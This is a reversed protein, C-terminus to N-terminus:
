GGSAGTLELTLELHTRSAHGIPDPMLCRKPHQQCGHVGVAALPDCTWSCIMLWIPFFQKDAQANTTTVNEPKSAKPLKMLEPQMYVGLVACDFPPQGSTWTHLDSVQSFVKQAM